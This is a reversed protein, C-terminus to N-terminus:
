SLNIFNFKIKDGQKKQSLVSISLNDLQLIRPYGGTVQGDQMLVILKGSPTLQVTGPIVPSSVISFSNPCIYENFFYGMRNNNSITFLENSLKFIDDSNLLKFEPGKSVNINKVFLFDSHNLYNKKSKKNNLFSYRDGTKIVSDTTISSYMSRSNLVKQSDIGGEIALYIRYGEIAKGFSLIDNKLVQIKTNNKVVNNNLQVDFLAGSICISTDSHFRFKGGMMTIEFVAENLSNSLLGNAKNASISDMFGSRTVGYASYGNRGSDQITIHYGKDLIEIM